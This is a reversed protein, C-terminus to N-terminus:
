PASGASRSASETLTRKKGKGNELDKKNRPELGEGRGVLLVTLLITTPSPEQTSDDDARRAERLRWDVCETLM